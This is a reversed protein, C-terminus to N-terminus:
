KLSAILQENVRKNALKIKFLAALTAMTTRILDLQLWYRKTLSPQRCPVMLAAQQNSRKHEVTLWRPTQAMKLTTYTHELIKRVEEPEINAPIGHAVFKSWKDNIKAMNPGIQQLYYSIM